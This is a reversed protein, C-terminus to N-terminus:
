DILLLVWRWGLNVVKLVWDFMVNGLFTSILFIAEFITVLAFDDPVLILFDEAASSM